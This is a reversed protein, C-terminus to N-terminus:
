PPRPDFPQWAFDRARALCLVDQYLDMNKRLPIMVEVKHEQKCKGIELGDIFGRDLILTKMVGRGVAQVFEGALEYLAPSESARGPLLKLGVYLFYDQSRNTHIISVMKYCREWHCRRDTLDVKQPDVPHNHDDFLLVDSNEYAENDPVFLYSGDGIFIGEEDFMRLRRLCQPAEQNFWAALLEPRTDSALKRLFDQDCPTGRGYHNKRSFGECWLTMDGTEPHVSKHGAKPGLAEMLGGCCIVYPYSFHSQSGHLKLSIESAIYLWLPVEEKQRPTPYSEALQGIVKRAFM